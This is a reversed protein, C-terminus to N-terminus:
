QVTLFNPDKMIYEVTHNVYIDKNRMEEKLQEITKGGVMLKTREIKRGPFSICFYDVNELSFFMDKFLPGIYVKTFPNIEGVGLAIQKPECNFIIAADSKQNRRYVIEQIRPDKLYGFGQIPADIEYLFVLDDRTLEQGKQTKNEIITLQEMNQTKKEYLKGDPFEALKDQVVKGIYPDMNQNSGIGRVEAIHDDEMRIAVRPIKPQGKSDFSYYVFFDGGNLQIRATSEGATCWGTGHGQLSQVLPMPDSGQPYKVWKGETNTLQEKSAPTVKEIAWAYLKAFSESQSLQEFQQRDQEELSELNIGEESYKKLMADLVYALAEPDLDPFPKVTDKRRKSFQKKKKDYEGMNLISRVAWYKLWDPYKADPSTLYDLWNNLSSKQDAIIVETHQQRMEATVTITGRGQERAIRQQLVFYAEPVEEPKIVYKSYLVQKFRALKEVRRQPDQPDLSEKFIYDLYNQIRDEPKEPVRQGTKAETRKAVKAVEDSAGLGLFKDKLFSPNRDM